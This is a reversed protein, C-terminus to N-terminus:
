LTLKKWWSENKKYWNVTDELKEEFNSKPKWGLKRVKNSDLAYRRDHGKRDEIFNILSEPKGLFGLIAKAVDINARENGGGINYTEGDKGDHLAVDIAECNDIVYLWDRVNGGDGYLPLHKNKLANIIFLPIFKEPHQYPGYNNSSRTIIVPLEHTIFYSKALMEAGAKSASYPNRPELKDTEKFAGNEISGYIEDTSIHIFREVGTKKAAELLRYSGFVDTLVFSGADVISRDVHTEAAFHVIADCDKMVKEVVNKDCVDGKIFKYNRNSAVDKLNDLNGAYTLKDLNVIKYEPYKSLTFRIFNSGIFGAGGTVLIKM